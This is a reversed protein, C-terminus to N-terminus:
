KNIPLSLLFAITCLLLGELPITVSQQQPTSSAADSQAHKQTETTGMEVDAAAEGEKNISTGKTGSETVTDSM